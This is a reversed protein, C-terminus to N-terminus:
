VPQCPPLVFPMAATVVLILLLFASFLVGVMSMFQVRENIGQAENDMQTSATQWTRFAVVGAAGVGIIALVTFLLPWFQLANIGAISATQYGIRCGLEVIGWTLMFQAFWILVPGAFGFWLAATSIRPDRERPESHTAQTV